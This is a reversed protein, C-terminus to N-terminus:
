SVSSSDIERLLYKVILPAIEQADKSFGELSISHTRKSFPFISYRWLNPMPDKFTLTLILELNQKNIGINKVSSFPISYNWGTHTLGGATLDM